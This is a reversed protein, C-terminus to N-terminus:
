FIFSVFYILVFVIFMQTVYLQLILSGDEEVDMM